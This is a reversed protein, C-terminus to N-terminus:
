DSAEAPEAGVPHVFVDVTEQEPEKPAPAHELDALRALITRPDLAETPMWGPVQGGVLAPVCLSEILLPMYIPSTPRAYTIRDFEGRETIEQGGGTMSTNRLWGRDGKRVIMQEIADPYPERTGPRLWRTVRTRRIEKRHGRPVSRFEEASPIHPGGAGQAQRAAQIALEAEAWARIIARGEVSMVGLGRRATEEFVSRLREAESRKHEIEALRLAEHADAVQRALTEVARRAIDLDVEADTRVQRAAIAADRGEGLAAEYKATAAQLAAKATALGGEAARHKSELDAIVDAGNRLTITPVTRLNSKSM